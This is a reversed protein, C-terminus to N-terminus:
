PRGILQKRARPHNRSQQWAMYRTQADYAAKEVLTYNRVYRRAFELMGWDQYQMVHTLEHVWLVPDHLADDQNRFVIVYDLTIAFAGVYKIANAQLTLDGGGGVRFRAIDLIHDPIFGALENRINTPIPQVGSALADDRSRAILQQVAPAAIQVLAENAVNSLSQDAEAYGPVLDEIQRKAEDLATGVGPAIINVADGISGAAFSPSTVCISALLFVLPSGHFGVAKMACRGGGKM